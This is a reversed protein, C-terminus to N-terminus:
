RQEGAREEVRRIFDGIEAQLAFAKGKVDELRRQEERIREISPATARKISEVSRDLQERIATRLQESFTDGLERFSKEIQSKLRQREAPLARFTFFGLGVMFVMATVELPAVTSVKAGLGSAAAASGFALFKNMGREASRRLEEGIKHPDVMREEQLQPFTNAPTSLASLHQRVDELLLDQYATIRSGAQDVLAQIRAEFNLESLLEFIKGKYQETRGTIKAKLLSFLGLHEDILDSFRYALEAFLARGQESFGEFLLTSEDVRRQCRLFIDDFLTLDRQTVALEGQLKDEYDKLLVEGTRLPSVVKAAIQKHKGLLSVLSDILAEIGEGTRSSVLFIPVQTDLFKDLGQAVFQKVEERQTENLLDCKNIVVIFKRKWTGSADRLFRLESDSLPREVSTIFLIYDSRRLYEETVQQHEEIISNTGPSDVFLLGDRGLPALAKTTPLIGTEAIEEGAIRNILSSKGANFEGCVFLAFPQALQDLLSTTVAIPLGREELLEKLRLLLSRAEAFLDKDPLHGILGSPTLATNATM